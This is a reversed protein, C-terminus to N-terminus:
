VPALALLLLVAAGVAIGVAAMPPLRDAGSKDSRALWDALARLVQTLEADVAVATAALLLGIVWPRVGLVACAVLVRVGALWVRAVGM